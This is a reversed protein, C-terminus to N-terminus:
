PGCRHATDSTCYILFTRPSEPRIRVRCRLAARKDTRVKGLPHRGVDLHKIKKTWTESSSPSTYMTVLQEPRGGALVESRRLVNDVSFANVYTM